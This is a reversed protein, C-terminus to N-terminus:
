QPPQLEYTEITAVGLADRRTAVIRGKEIWYPLNVGQPFVIAGAYGGRVSFVRWVVQDKPIRPEGLPTSRHSQQLAFLTDDVPWMTNWLPYHEAIEVSREAGPTRVAGHFDERIEPEESKAIPAREMPAEVIGVLAGDDAYHRFRARDSRGVVVGSGVPAFWGMAAFLTVPSINTAREPVRPPMPAIFEISGSELELRGVSDILQRDEFFVKWLFLERTSTRQMVVGGMGAVQVPLEEHLTGELGFRSIRANGPDFIWISQSSEPWLVANSSLIEGPGQGSPGFRTEVVDQSASIVALRREWGDLVVLRGDPLRTYGQPQYILPDGDPHQTPISREVHLRWEFAPDNWPPLSSLRYVPIGSSDSREVPIPENSQAGPACSMVWACAALLGLRWIQSDIVRWEM